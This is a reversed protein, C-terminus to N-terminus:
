NVTARKEVNSKERKSRIRENAIEVLLNDLQRHSLSEGLESLKSKLQRSKDAFLTYEQDYGNSKIMENTDSSARINFQTMADKARSDYIFFLEPYHFHLYKSAFSRKKLYKEESELSGIREVLYAHLALTMEFIGPQDLTQGQLAELKQDIGANQFLPVIANFYFDDGFHQNKVKIRELAVAYVRGIMLVKAVIEQADIHKPHNSCLKYLIDNSLQWHNTAKCQILAAELQQDTLKSLKQTM